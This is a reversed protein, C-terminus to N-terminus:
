TVTKNCFCLCVNFCMCTHASLLLIPPKTLDCMRKKERVKFALEYDHHANDHFPLTSQTYPILTYTHTYAHTDLTDTNQRLRRSKNCKSVSIVCKWVHLMRKLSINQTEKGTCHPIANRPATDSRFAPGLLHGWCLHSNVDGKRTEM